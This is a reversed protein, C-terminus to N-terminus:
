GDLGGRRQLPTPPSTVLLWLLFHFFSSDADGRVVNLEDGSFALTVGLVEDTFHLFVVVFFFVLEYGKLLETLVAADVVVFDFVQYILLSYDVM